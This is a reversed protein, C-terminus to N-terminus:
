RPSRRPRLSVRDSGLGGAADTLRELWTPVAKANSRGTRPKESASSGPSHSVHGSAPGHVQGHLEIGRTPSILPSPVTTTLRLRVALHSGSCESGSATTPGTAVSSLARALNLRRMRTQHLAIVADSTQISRTRMRTSMTPSVCPQMMDMTQPSNKRSPRLALKAAVKVAARVARAWVVMRSVERAAAKGAERVAAESAKRPVSGTTATQGGARWTSLMGREAGTGGANMQGIVIAGMALGAM